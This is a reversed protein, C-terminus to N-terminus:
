GILIRLYYAGLQDIHRTQDYSLQILFYVKWESLVVRYGARNLQHCVPPWFLRM